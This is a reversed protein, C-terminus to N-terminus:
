VFYKNLYDNMQVWIEKKAAGRCPFLAGEGNKGFNRDLMNLVISAVHKESYNNDDYFTLGLNDMMLWFWQFTRDGYDEDYMIDGDIIKALAVMVELVSADRYEIEHVNLQEAIDHRMTIADEERNRDMEITYRFPVNNLYKLVKSYRKASHSNGPDTIWLCMIRFEEDKFNKM